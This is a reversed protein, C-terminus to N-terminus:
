LAGSAVTVWSYTTVTAGQLCTQLLTPAGSNRVRILLGDQTADATPRTDPSSTYQRPQGKQQGIMIGRDIAEEIGEPRYGGLTRFQVLQTEAILREIRLTEGTAPAIIMNVTGGTDDGVGNLTYHTSITQVTEVGTADVILTVVLDASNYIKFGFTFATQAGDGPGTVLRILSTVTM